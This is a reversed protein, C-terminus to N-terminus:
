KERPISELSERSVVIRERNCGSGLGSFISWTTISPCTTDSWTSKVAGVGCSTGYGVRTNESLKFTVTLM